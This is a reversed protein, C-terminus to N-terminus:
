LEVTEFEAYRVCNRGEHKARYLAGDADAILVSPADNGQPIRAALGISVTIGGDSEVARRMHEALSKAHSLDVNVLIAAFEEGGYRAFCDGARRLVSSCVAAVRRLCEDGVQHGRTDNLRKFHDIDIMAIAVPVKARRAVNWMRELTEDFTRRNAVGTLGDLYALREFRDREGQVGRNRLAVAYAFFLAEWTVGAVFSFILFESHPLVGNSALDDLVMGVAPGALAALYTGAIQPGEHPIARVGLVILVVIMADLALQDVIFFHHLWFPFLDEAVILPLNVAMIVIAIQGLNREFHMTRLLTLAFFVLCAMYAAFLIAHLGLGGYAGHSISYLELLAVVLMLLAYVASATSRMIIGVIANVVAMAVFFGTFGACALQYTYDAASM